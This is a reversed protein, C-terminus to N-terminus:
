KTTFSVIEGCLEANNVKACAKFFYTTRPNLGLVNKIFTGVLSQEVKTTVLGLNETTGYKFYTDTVGNTINMTGNLVATKDTIQTASETIISSGQPISNGNSDVPAFPNPRGPVVPEIKVTNDILLNFSKNSFLTTDISITKLAVLTSLFSIDSTIDSGLPSTASEGETSSALSSGFAVPILSESKLDRSSYLYFGGILLFLTSVILFKNYKTKM